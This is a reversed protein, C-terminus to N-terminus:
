KNAFLDNITRSENEDIIRLFDQAGAMGAFASMGAELFAQLRGLGAAHAPGRMIRLTAALLKSRTHRDLARGCGLLLALQRERDARRGVLRWAGRYSAEGIDASSLAAAMRQDLEETLSHLEILAAVTRRVEQPLVHAMLPVVREFESDRAAFDEPGYLEELFFTAAACYRPSALLASYDRMFRAHQFQKIAEVRARLGPDAERERRLRQVDELRSVVETAWQSM